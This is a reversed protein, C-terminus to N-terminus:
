TLRPGRWKFGIENLQDIQEMTLLSDKGKKMRRYEVRQNSIWKAMGSPNNPDITMNCHGFNKAFKALEQLRKEWSVPAPADKGWSFGLSDLKAIREPMLKKAKRAKKQALIWNGLQPNPGKQPVICNGHLIRHERLEKFKMEWRDNTNAVSADDEDDSFEDEETAALKSELDKIRREAETLKKESLTLKEKTEKLEKELDGITDVATTEGGTSAKRKKSMTEKNSM